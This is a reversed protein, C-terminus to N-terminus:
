RDVVIVDGPILMSSDMTEFRDAGCQVRVETSGHVKERLRKQNVRIEYTTIILSIASMIIIYLSYYYYQDAFWFAMACVQYIYFPNLAERFLVTLIPQVQINIMNLGFLQLRKSRESQDIVKTDFLSCCHIYDFDLGVLKDFQNKDFDWIYKTKKNYFYKIREVEVFTGNNIPKLIGSTGHEEVIKETYNEEYKDQFINRDNTKRVDSLVLKGGAFCHRCSRDFM